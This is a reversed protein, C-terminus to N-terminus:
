ERLSFKDIFSNASSYRCTTISNEAISLFNLLFFLNFLSDLRPKWDIRTNIKFWFLSKSDSKTLIYEFLAKSTMDSEIREEKLYSLIKQCESAFMKPLSWRTMRVMPKSLLLKLLSKFNTFIKVIFIVWLIFIKSWFRSFMAIMLISEINPM